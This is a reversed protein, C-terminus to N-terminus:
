YYPPHPPYCGNYPSYPAFYPSPSPPPYTSFPGPPPYASSPPPPYTNQYAPPYQPQYQYPPHPPHYQPPPAQYFAPIPCPPAPVPAPQPPPPKAEPLSANPYRLILRIEGASKRNNTLQCFCEQYGSTLVEELYVKGSGIFDNSTFTNSNFVSIEIERLGDFLKFKFKDRFVPNRGGDTCTRTRFETGGYKVFVHPDQRSFWETDKLRSGEVVTVELIQDQISDCRSVM